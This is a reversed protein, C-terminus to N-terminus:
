DDQPRVLRYGAGNDRSSREVRYRAPELTVHTWEDDDDDGLVQVGAVASNMLVWASDRVDLEFLPTFSLPEAPADERGTLLMSRERWWAVTDCGDSIALATADGLPWLLETTGEVFAACLRDYDTRPNAFDCDDHIFWEVSDEDVFDVMADASRPTTLLIGRWERIVRRPLLLVPAGSTNLWKM